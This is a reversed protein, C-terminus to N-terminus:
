LTKHSGQAELKWKKKPFIWGSHWVSLNKSDPSSPFLKYVWHVINETEWNLFNFLSILMLLKFKNVINISLVYARKWWKLDQHIKM